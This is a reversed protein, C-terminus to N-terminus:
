APRRGKAYQSLVLHVWQRTRGIKKAIQVASMGRERMRVIRDIAEQSMPPRGKKKKIGRRLRFEAVRHTTIGLKKAIDLDTMKGINKRLFDLEKPSLEKRRAM